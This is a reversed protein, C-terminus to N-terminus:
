PRSRRADAACPSRRGRRSGGAHRVLEDCGLGVLGHLEGQAADVLRMGAALAGVVDVHYLDGVHLTSEAVAGARQMAIQFLRPDPKEVKEMSSDVIVDFYRTLDLRDLLAVLRGNSNSIVITTLGRSRIADLAERAGASVSEWLNHTNNYAQLANLAAESAKSPKIGANELINNFYLWGRQLDNTSKVIPAGDFRKKAAPEAAELSGVDVLIGHDHLAAAVRQWNPNVLVGGADFSVTKILM